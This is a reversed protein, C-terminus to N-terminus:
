DIAELLTPGQYWNMKDSKQILNDGKWASIPVFKIDKPGYGIRVLHKTM